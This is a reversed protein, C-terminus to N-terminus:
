TNTLKDEPQSIAANSQMGLRQVNHLAQRTNEQVNHLKRKTRHMSKMSSIFARGTESITADMPAGSRVTYEQFIPSLNGGAQTCHSM